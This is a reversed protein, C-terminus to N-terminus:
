MKPVICCKRFSFFEFIELKKEFFNKKCKKLRLYLASKLRERRTLQQRLRLHRSIVYMSGAQLLSQVNSTKIEIKGVYIYDVLLTIASESVDRLEVVSQDSETCPGTFMACFYHSGSCSVHLCTSILTIFFDNSNNKLSRDSFHSTLVRIEM